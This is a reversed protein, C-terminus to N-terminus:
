RARSAIRALENLIKQVIKMTKTRIAEALNKEIFYASGLKEILGLSYLMDLTSSVKEPDENVESIIEDLTLGDKGILLNYIKMGLEDVGLSRLVWEIEMGKNPKPRLLKIKFEFISEFPESM